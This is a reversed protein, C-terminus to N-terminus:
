CSSPLLVMSQVLQRLCCVSESLVDLCRISLVMPHHERQVGRTWFGFSFLCPDHWHRFSRHYLRM